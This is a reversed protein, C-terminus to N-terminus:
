APNREISSTRIHVRGKTWGAQNRARRISDVAATKTSYGRKRSRAIEGHRGTALLSWHWRGDEKFVVFHPLKM